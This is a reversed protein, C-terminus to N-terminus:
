LSKLIDRVVQQVNTRFGNVAVGLKDISIMHRELRNNHVNLTACIDDCRKDLEKGAAVTNKCCEELKEIRMDLADTVGSVGDLRTSQSSLAAALYDDAERMEKQTAFKNARISQVYFEIDSVRAALKAIRDDYVSPDKSELREIRGKLHKIDQSNRYGGPMEQLEDQIKGIADTNEKFLSVINAMEKRLKILDEEDVIRETRVTCKDMVTIDKM